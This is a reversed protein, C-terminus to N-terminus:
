VMTDQIHRFAKRCLDRAQPRKANLGKSLADILKNITCTSPVSSLPQYVIETLKLSSEAILSFVKSCADANKHSISPALLQISLLPPLTIIMAALVEAAQECIFRPGVSTRNVLDTVLRLIHGESWKLKSHTNIVARACLVGNRVTSSRLSQIADVIADTITIMLQNESDIKSDSHFEILLSDTHHLLVRRIFEVLAYKDAWTGNNDTKDATNSNVVNYLGSKSILITLENIVNDNPEYPTIEDDQLLTVDYLEGEPAGCM